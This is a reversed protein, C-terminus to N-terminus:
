LHGPRLNRRAGQTVAKAMSSFCIRISFVLCSNFALLSLSICFSYLGSDAVSNPVMAVSEKFLLLEISGEM